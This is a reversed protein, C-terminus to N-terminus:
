WMRELEKSRNHQYNYWVMTKTKFIDAHWKKKISVWRKSVIIDHSVRFLGKVTKSSKNQTWILHKKKKKISNDLYHTYGAQDRAHCTMKTSINTTERTHRTDRADSEWPPLMNLAVHPPRTPSKGTQFYLISYSQSLGQSLGVSRTETDWDIDPRNKKRIPRSIIFLVPIDVSQYLSSKASCSLISLRCMVLVYTASSNYLNFDYVSLSCACTSRSKFCSCAIYCICWQDRLMRRDVTIGVGPNRCM